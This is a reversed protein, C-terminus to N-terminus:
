LKIVYVSTPVLMTMLQEPATMRRRTPPVEKHLEAREAPRRNYFEATGRAM